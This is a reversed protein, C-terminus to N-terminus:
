THGQIGVSVINVEFNVMRLPNVLCNLKFSKEKKVKQYSNLPFLKQLSIM